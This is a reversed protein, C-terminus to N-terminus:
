GCYAANVLYVPRNVLFESTIQNKTLMDAGQYKRYVHIVNLEGLVVHDRTNHFRVEIHKSRRSASFVHLLKISAQNDEFMPICEFKLYPLDAGFIDLLTRRLVVCENTADSLCVYEAETSSQAVLDHLRCIWLIPGMALYVIVGSTSRRKPLHSAYSSDCFCLLSYRHEEPIGPFLPHNEDKHHYTIGHYKTDRLYALIRKAADWHLRSPRTLHSCLLRVPNCIDLRTAISLYLFIGILTRYKSYFEEHLEGPYWFEEMGDLTSDMPSLCDESLIDSVDVLRLAKNILASQLLTISKTTPNRYIEMGIIQTFPLEKIAFRAKFLVRFAQLGEINDGVILVDDVFLALLLILGAATIHIFLCPDYPSIRFGIALLWTSIEKYWNRPSQKMGYLSKLLFLYLAPYMPDIFGKPQNCYHPEQVYSQCFANDVDYQNGALGYLTMLAILMRIVNMKVVPSFTETYHVGEKQLFGRVCLRSKYRKISGDLNLKLKFVWKLSIPSVGHPLRRLEWTLKDICSSIEDKMSEVWELSSKCKVADEYLGPEYLDAEAEKVKIAAVADNLLAMIKTLRDGTTDGDEPIVHQPVGAPYIGELVSECMYSLANFVPHEKATKDFNDDSVAMLCAPLDKLDSTDVEDDSEDNGATSEPERADEKTEEDGSVNDEDGSVVDLDGRQEFPVLVPPTPPPPPIADIEDDDSSYDFVTLDLPELAPHPLANLEKLTSKVPDGKADYDPDTVPPFFPTENDFTCNRTLLVHGTESSLCRYTYFEVTYISDVREMPGLFGCRLKKHPFVGKRRLTKPITVWVTCLFPHFEGYFQFPRNFRMEYPSKDGPNGKNLFRNMMFQNYKHGEAWKRLRQHSQLCNAWALSATTGSNLLDQCKEVGGNIEATHSSFGRITVGAPMYTQLADPNLGGEGDAQFSTLASSVEITLIAGPAHVRKLWSQVATKLEPLSRNKVYQTWSWSTYADWLVFPYKIGSATTIFPGSLDGLVLQLYYTPPNISVRNIVLRKGFAIQCPNCFSSTGTIEVSNTKGFKKLLGASRNFVNHLQMIPIKYVRPAPRDPYPSKGGHRLMKAKIALMQKHLTAHDPIVARSDVDADDSVVDADTSAVDADDSVVDANTPPNVQNVKIVAADDSVDSNSPAKVSAGKRSQYDLELKLADAENFALEKAEVEFSGDKFAVVWKDENIPLEVTGQYFRPKRGRTTWLSPRVFVTDGVALCAIALKADKTVASSALSNSPIYDPDLEFDFYMKCYILGNTKKYLPTVHGHPLRLFYVGVDAHVFRVGLTERRTETPSLLNAGLGPVSLAEAFSFSAYKGTSTVVAATLTGFHTCCVQVGGIGTTSSGDEVPVLQSLQDITEKIGLMLRTAGTDIILEDFDCDIRKGAHLAALYNSNALAEDLDVETTILTAGAPIQSTVVAMSAIPPEAVTVKKKPVIGLRSASAPVSETATTNPAPSSTTADTSEPRLHPHLAYCTEQKHGKWYTKGATKCHQCGKKGHDKKETNDKKDALGAKTKWSAALVVLESHSKGEFEKQAKALKKNEPTKKSDKPDKPGKDHGEEVSPLVKHKYTSIVDIKLSKYARMCKDETDLSDSHDLKEVDRIALEYLKYPTGDKTCLMSVLKALREKWKKTIEIEELKLIATEFDILKSRIDDKESIEFKDYVQQLTSQDRLSAKGKKKPLYEDIIAVWAWYFRSNGVNVADTEDESYPALFHTALKYPYSGYKLTSLMVSFLYESADSQLKKNAANGDYVVLTFLYTVRKRAVYARMEDFWRKFSHVSGDWEKVSKTIHSSDKVDDDCAVM